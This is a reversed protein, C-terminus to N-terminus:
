VSVSVYIFMGGAEVFQLYIENDYVVVYYALLYLLPMMTLPIGSFFIYIHVYVCVCMCVTALSCGAGM